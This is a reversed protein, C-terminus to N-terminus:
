YGEGTLCYQMAGVMRALGKLELITLTGTVTSVPLECLRALDDIHIPEAGLHQLIQSEQPNSPSVREAQRRTQTAEHVMDLEDLIDNADIVLKVGDQILRNSGRSALSFISGPVAFVDRGQEAAIAATILAGSKEPAEVVLVAHSLGSILRNRRPFNGAEPRAGIPFESIVAGTRIIEQALETNGPPYIRDIGCGLVAITRGGGDLAGRHAASDVGQALGSVITVKSHAIQKSLGYAVDRGYSTAKRTGVVALAREDGSTLTGRVYLLMPADPLTKLLPPYSADEQTVLSAGAQIVKAMERNLDIKTRFQLLNQLPQPDLSQRLSAESAKWATELDGEFKELLLSLRKPGIEPILSFGLWYKADSL